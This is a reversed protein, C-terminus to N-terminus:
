AHAGDLASLLCENLQEALVKVHPDRMIAFHDGPIERVEVGDRAVSRWDAALNAPSGFHPDSAQFLTVRANGARPVYSRAAQLNAKFVRILARTQAAEIGPPLLNLRRIHDTAFNLQEDAKLNQIGERLASVHEPPLGMHLASNILLTADDEAVQKEYTLRSDFLALLAIQQRQEQLLRVMEFAILGGTSWGGILYPGEPQITRIAEVYHAAAAEVSTFPEEGDELGRAQLGYFPRGPGLHQALAAYCLVNGGAPHVCFLAPGDGERRIAVLPSPTLPEGQQRILKALSEITAGEILGSLPLTRGTASAIQTMLRVALLSHGGLEFFNDKMGIPRVDLVEEWIRALQFELVDRPAVFVEELRLGPQAAELARRDLKGNPTLPLEDLWVLVSPVMYDPLKAKLYLRLEGATLTPGRSVVFAALRTETGSGQVIVAAERVSDHERLVSEVEGLEIRFGRLKVQHDRRGLFEIQGDSKFRAFDGSRYLRAGEQASFPDPVFREATFDPRRWYGRGVGDGGIYLEGPVGIPVPGLHQDLLYIQTNAIPRGILVPGAAADDAAVEYVCCGVVTETPGYENILRTAPAHQRWDTLSELHLPEGGVILARVRGAFQYAPMLEALAILHAPTIKLFSYDREVLSAALAGIGDPLLFLSKGVLLPAFLSTVTLDFSASSHVQAGCGESVSYANAAWSLYNTLGRHHIMVGKPQGTSGSTYIVYALNGDGVSTELDADSELAIWPWNTDLCLTQSTRPALKAVLREQTLLVSTQADALMFSLRDSPYEPDLPVYAGGAKLIGLLAVVMEVSREMCVGVLREPGVGLKRLHHALQNARRNLERYSIQEHQCVLAIAEPSRQAQEEFLQPLAKGAEYEAATENWETVMRTREHDSLLPLESLRRHPDEVAAALVREWQEVMRQARAADFIDTNYELGGSLKGAGERLWLTLDYKASELEAGVGSVALGEPQEMAEAEPQMVMMVQFLPTHAMSREPALEEVLKEFPVEQHGYAGVCVARVREVLEAFSPDGGLQVRLVLTNVFFGILPEVEVHTRGSVATGVSIDEEGSLRHLLAQWAALLVMFTTVGAERGLQRVRDSLGANLAFRHHAGRHSQVPPRPRDAPLELIEPAGGLEDRWYSLHQALEDGQLWGRQWAAYDAYQLGLAPLPSDEGRAFAGYLLAVERVLVGLSWADSSVHHMTLLALYDEDDLRLLRARLLPPRSLDFPEHAESRMRERAAEDRQGPDLERLDELRLPVPEAPAIVQVPGDGAMEFSTRLVEHRRVIESLARELVDVQLSGRLRMALPMNYVVSGPTLQDIFWLRQQAFSLPLPKTRAVAVLPPPPATQDRLATEVWSGLKAVTPHTFMRRLPVDLQLAERMRTVVQTASLSHGGLAFFNDNVGFGDVKLVAAWISLLLREIETRPAAPAGDSLSIDVFPVPLARRDIKGNPTLPLQPLIVFTSPVMYDPLFKQLYARLEESTPAPQAEDNVLYAVLRADDFAEQRVLVVAERLAPHAILHSEIEELEIRFGRLKVQQDTRGMFQLNGDPLYRALDGTRYLRAGPQASCPNPIFKEATSEALSLYGRALGEGGIYLEGAVGVPLCQLHENLIYVQTNSIPRGIPVIGNVSEVRCSTSWITTETPGYLNWLTAGREILRNALERSLAEGGCFAKLGGPQEWGSDAILRWSTPTAQMATAGSSALRQTLREGDIAIERSVLEVRAGVMLPLFLELAAIDFSLSTVALMVDKETLATEARMSFLFNVVARHPIQVGKPKGTSGSTYLVYALNAAGVGVPPNNKSGKSITEWDTDLCVVEANSAPLITMLSRQTIIVPVRADDLMLALRLPPYAP